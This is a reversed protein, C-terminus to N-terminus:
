FFFDLLMYYVIAAGKSSECGLNSPDDATQEM